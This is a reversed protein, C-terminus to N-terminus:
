LLMPKATAARKESSVLQEVLALAFDFATGPGQSTVFQGDIVVKEDVFTYKGSGTLKDKLAPYCTMKKGEGVGVSTLSVAPAACIAGIVRGAKEQETLLAKATASKGINEAGKLGGPLVVADYPGKAVAEELSMDPLLVVDRSCLVSGAGGVGGVTVKVGGRRLVDIAIVAEMEEAGEALLVLATKPAM